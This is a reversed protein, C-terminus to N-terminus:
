HTIAEIIENVTAILNGESNLVTHIPSGALVSCSSIMADQMALERKIFNLSVVDRNRTNDKMRRNYIEEPKASVSVFHHPMIIHLISEPLGPYFGVPTKVFAHTDIIVFDNTMDALKQAVMNQLERQKLIDLKRLEDRNTIGISKATDLMMTGFSCVSTDYDKSLAIRIEEVLTTKGVGPIGVIVIKKSEALYLM